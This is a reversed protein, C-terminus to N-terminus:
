ESELSRAILRRLWDSVHTDKDLCHRRLRLHLDRDLDFTLRVPKSGSAKKNNTTSSDVWADANEKSTTPPRANLTVKKKM